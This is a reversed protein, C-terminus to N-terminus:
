HFPLIRVRTKTEDITILAGNEIEPEHQQLIRIIPIATTKPDIDAARVQIVSPKKTGTEALLTGFDLDHTFVVYSHVTAYEMIEADSAGALGIKSWHIAEFGNQSLFDVWRPSLNMDILIKM